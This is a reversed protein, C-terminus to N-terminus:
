AVKQKKIALQGCAALIDRGRPTRLNIQIGADRVIKLFDEVEEPTPAQLSEIDSDNLAIANIKCFRKRTIAVLEKAAQQTCTLDKILVYEFTIMNGTQATYTDIADLLSALPYRNTIPMISKRMEDNTGNLSVALQAPTEQKALELIKPVVGSTSVTIRRRGLKFYRQDHLWICTKHVEDFNHLPEGMGMFIVNTIGPDGRDRLFHNAFIVQELIEGTTLNRKLGMKATRCFTCGMACGVQTSVCLSFRANKPILVSEIVFNDATRFAWKTTGDASIQLSEERLSALFCHNKLKERLAVPINDMLDFDMVGRNFVWHHLQQTRYPKEGISAMFEKAQAETLSKFDTTSM